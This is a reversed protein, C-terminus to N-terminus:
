AVLNDNIQNNIDIKRDISNIKDVIVLQESINPLEIQIYDFTKRTITDFVSGHVNKSFVQKNAILWYYVYEPVAINTRVHLGYISQNFTYGSHLMMTEGVTGRASIVIDKDKSLKTASHRLGEETIYGSATKPYKSNFDRITIWPISGNWYEQVSKKPTGGSIIDVCDSLKYKM